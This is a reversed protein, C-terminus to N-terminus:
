EDGYCELMSLTDYLSKGDSKHVYGIPGDKGYEPPFDMFHYPQPNDNLYYYDRRQQDAATYKYQLTAGFCRRLNEKLTQTPFISCEKTCISYKAVGNQRTIVCYYLEIIKCSQDTRWQKYSSRWGNYNSCTLGMLKCRFELYVTNCYNYLLTTVSTANMLDFDHLNNCISLWIELPLNGIEQPINKTIGEPPPVPDVSPALSVEEDSVYDIHTAINQHVIGNVEDDFSYYIDDLADDDSIYELDDQSMMIIITTDRFIQDIKESNPAGIFM